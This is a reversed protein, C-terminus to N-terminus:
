QVTMKKPKAVRRRSAIPLKVPRQQSDVFGEIVRVVKAPAVVRTLLWRRGRRTLQWFEYCTSKSLDYGIRTPGLSWPAYTERVKTFTV